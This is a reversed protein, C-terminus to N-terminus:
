FDFLRVNMNEFKWKYGVLACYVCTSFGCRLLNTVDLKDSILKYKGSTYTGMVGLSKQWLGHIYSHCSFLM